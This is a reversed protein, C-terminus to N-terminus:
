TTSHKISWMLLSHLKQSKYHMSFLLKLKGNTSQFIGFNSNTGGIDAVLIATINKSVEDVYLVEKFALM